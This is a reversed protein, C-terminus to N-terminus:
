PSKEEEVDGNDEFAPGLFRQLMPGIAVGRIESIEIVSAVGGLEVKGDMFGHKFRLRMAKPYGYELAKRIQNATLDEHYPDQIELIDPLHQADLRLAQIKGSLDMKAPAFSLAANADMSPGDFPKQTM